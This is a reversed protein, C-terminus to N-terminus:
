INKEYTCKVCKWIKDVADWIVQGVNKKCKECTYLKKNKMTDKGLRKLM